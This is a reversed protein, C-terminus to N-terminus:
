YCISYIVIFKMILLTFSYISLYFDTEIGQM